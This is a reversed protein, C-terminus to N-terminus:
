SVGLLDYDQFNLLKNRIMLIWERTAVLMAKKLKRILIMDEMLGKGKGLNMLDKGTVELINQHTQSDVLLEM